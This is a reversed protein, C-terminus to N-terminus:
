LAVCKRVLWRQDPQVLAVEELVERDEAEEGFRRGSSLASRLGGRAAVEEALLV